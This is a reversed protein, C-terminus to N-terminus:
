DYIRKMYGTEVYDDMVKLPKIKKYDLIFRMMPNVTIDNPILEPKPFEMLVRKVAGTKNSYERM